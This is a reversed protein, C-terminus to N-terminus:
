VLLAVTNAVGWDNSLKQHTTLQNEFISKQKRQMLKQWPFKLGFFGKFTKKSGYLFNIHFFRNSLRM